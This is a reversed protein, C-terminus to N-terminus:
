EKGGQSKLTQQRGPQSVQTGPTWVLAKTVAAPGTSTLKPCQGHASPPNQAPRGPESDLGWGAIAAPSHTIYRGKLAQKGRQLTPMATPEVECVEPSTHSSQSLQHLNTSMEQTRDRFSWKEVGM